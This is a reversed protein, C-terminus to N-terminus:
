SENSEGIGGLRWSGLSYVDLLLAERQCSVQQPQDAALIQLDAVTGPELTGWGEPLFNAKAAGATRWHFASSFPVKEGPSYCSGVRGRQLRHVAADLDRWPDVSEIPADTGLVIPIGAADISRLAFANTARKGWRKDLIERDQYLHCPQLSAITGTDRIQKLDEPDALQFHEIRDPLDQERVSRTISIVRNAEKVAADGIAHIALAWGRQGANRAIRELDDASKRIVGVNGVDDSYDSKMWATRSGLTGDVFIKVWPMAFPDQPEGVPSCDVGSELASSFLDEPFGHRIRIGLQGESNAQGLVRISEERDFTTAATIGHGLLWRAADSAYNKKVRPIATWIEEADQEIVIGTHSKTDVGALRLAESNVLARHHDSNWLFVPDDSVVTDLFRRPDPNMHVPVPDKWGHGIRPGSNQNSISTVIAEVPLGALEHQDLHEMSYLLHIHSDVFAPLVWHNNLDIVRASTSDGQGLSSWSTIRDGDIRLDYRRDPDGPYRKVGRLLWAGV